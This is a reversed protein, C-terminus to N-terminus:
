VDAARGTVSSADHHGHRSLTLSESNATQPKRDASRLDARKYYLIRARRPTGREVALGNGQVLPCYFVVEPGRLSSVVTAELAFALSDVNTITTSSSAETALDVQLSMRENPM